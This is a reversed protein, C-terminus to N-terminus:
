ALDGFGLWAPSTTCRVTGDVAAQGVVVVQLAQPSITCVLQRASSAGLSGRLSSGRVPDPRLRLLGLHPVRTRPDRPALWNNGTLRHEEPFAPVQLSKGSPLFLM